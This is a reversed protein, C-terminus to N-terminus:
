ISYIYFYIKYKDHFRTNKLSQRKYYFKLINVSTLITNLNIVTYM